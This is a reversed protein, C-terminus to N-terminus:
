PTERTRKKSDSRRSFFSRSRRLGWLVTPGMLLLTTAPWGSYSVLRFEEDSAARTLVIDQTMDAPTYGRRLKTVFDGPHLTQQLFPYYPLDALEGASFRNAYFTEAGPFTLRHDARVYLHVRTDEAASFASIKMPYVPEDAAFTLTIPDLGGYYYPYYYDDGGHGGYHEELATSDVQMTVFYWDREVYDTIAATADAINGSHLFGWATLSDLLAPASDSAVIMTQYYGVLETNIVDVGNDAPLPVGGYDYTESGLCNWQGDRSRYVPQSIMDLEQFLQRDALQLQPLSPVPVVWAFGSANGYFSPLISLAETGTSENWDLFAQQVPEYMFSEPPSIFMGDASAGGAALLATLLLIGKLARSM